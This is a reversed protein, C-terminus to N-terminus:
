EISKSPLSYSTTGEGKCNADYPISNTQATWDEFGGKSRSSRPHPRDGFGQLWNRSLTRPSKTQLCPFAGIYLHKTFSNLASRCTTSPKPLVNNCWQQQAFSKQRGMTSSMKCRSGIWINRLSLCSFVGRSYTRGSAYLAQFLNKLSTASLYQGFPLLKGSNEGGKPSRLFGLPSRKSGGMASVGANAVLTADPFIVGFVIDLM